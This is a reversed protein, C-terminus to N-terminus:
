LDLVSKLQPHSPYVAKAWLMLIMPAMPTVFAYRRNSANNYTVELEIQDFATLQASAIGNFWWEYSYEPEVIYLGYQTAIVESKGQDRWQASAEREAKKKIANNAMWTAAGAVALTGLSGFVIGGVQNYEVTAGTYFYSQNYAKCIRKEDPAFRPPFMVPVEQGTFIGNKNIDLYVGRTFDLWQKHLPDIVPAVNTDQVEEVQMVDHSVVQVQTNDADLSTATATGCVWCFRAGEDLSQGCKTCIMKM